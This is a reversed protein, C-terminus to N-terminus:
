VTLKMEALAEQGSKLAGARDRKRMAAVMDRVHPLARVLNQGLPHLALGGSGETPDPVPQSMLEMESLCMEAHDTLADWWSSADNSKLLWDVTRQLTDVVGENLM